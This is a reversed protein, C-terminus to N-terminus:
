TKARIRCYSPLCHDRVSIGIVSFQECRSRKGQFFLLFQARVPKVIAVLTAEIETLGSKLARVYHYTGNVTSHLVKFYEEAFDARIRINQFSVPIERCHPLPQCAELFELMALIKLRVSIHRGKRNVLVLNALHDVCFSGM